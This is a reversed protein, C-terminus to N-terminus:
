SSSEGQELKQKDDPYHTIQYKHQYDAIAGTLDGRARRINGRADYAM